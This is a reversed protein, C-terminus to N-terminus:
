DAEDIWMLQIAELIGESSKDPADDFEEITLRSDPDLGWAKDLFDEELEDAEDLTEGGERVHVNECCPMASQYV